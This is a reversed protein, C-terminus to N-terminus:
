RLTILQQKSFEITRIDSFSWQFLEFKITDLTFEIENCSLELFILIDNLIQNTKMDVQNISLLNIPTSDVNQTKNSQWLSIGMETLYTFQKSTLAM